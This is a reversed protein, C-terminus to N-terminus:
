CNAIDQPTVVYNLTASSGSVRGTSVTQRSAQNVLAFNQLLTDSPRAAKTDASAPTPAPWCTEAKLAAPALWASAVLKTTTVHSALPQPLLVMPAAATGQSMRKGVGAGLGASRDIGHLYAVSIEDDPDWSYV